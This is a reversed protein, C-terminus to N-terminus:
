GGSRIEQGMDSDRSESPRSALRDRARAKAEWHAPSACSELASTVRSRYGYRVETGGSSLPEKLSLSDKHVGLVGHVCALLQPLRPGKALIAALQSTTSVQTLRM